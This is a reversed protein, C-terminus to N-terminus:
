DPWVGSEAAAEAALFGALVDPQEAQPSHGGRWEVVRQCRRAMARQLDPAVVLDDACVVYTAPTSRWAAAGPTGRFLARAVPRTRALLADAVDDPVGSYVLERGLVPDLLVESRDASFVLAEGLRTPAIGLDACASNVTEDETLAFAAVYVLREVCPHDGAATVVAGGYSHGVLVVRRGAAALDDLVARVAAVDDPLSTLPLDVAVCEVGPLRECVPDWSWGGHWLGHVLVLVPAAAPATVVGVTATAAPHPCM